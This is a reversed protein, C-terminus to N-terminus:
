VYITKKLIHEGSRGRLGTKDALDVTCAFQHSIKERLAQLISFARLPDTDEVFHPTTEILVDIDSNESAEDRAFSGFIGHIVIGEKEHSSKISRLYELVAEKTIM